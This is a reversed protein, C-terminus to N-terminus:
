VLVDGGDRQMVIEGAEELRRVVTVVKQQAEEVQRLRVPGAADMDERLMEAARSSLNRFIRERLSETAGRLALALDKQEVQRLVKQLSQDDLQSLNDFVFMQKLVEEALLPSQKELYDIIPRQTARDVNTLIKVLYDVGGATSYESTLVSSLRRRLVNEVGEIVEPPTREMTAIRMAVDAQLDAPLNALIRSAMQAPLHALILAIAQPQEDQIFSALQTPDTDLLFEFHSPRMSAALRSMIDRTKDDGLARLLIEQAYALGGSKIQRGTLGSQFCETIVQHRVESPVDEAVVIEMTLQEIESERLQQLVRSSIDPGLTILLVAAKEKGTLKNLTM